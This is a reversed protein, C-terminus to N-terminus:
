NLLCDAIVVALTYMENFKNMNIRQEIFYHGLVKHCNMNHWLVKKALLEARHIAISKKTKHVYTNDKQFIDVCRIYQNHASMFKEAMDILSDLEDVDTIQIYMEFTRENFRLGKTTEKNM